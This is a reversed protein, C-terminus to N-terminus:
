LKLTKELIDNESEDTILTDDKFCADWIKGM